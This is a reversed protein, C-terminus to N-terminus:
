SLGVSLSLDLARCGSDDCLLYGGTEYWDPLVWREVTKEGIRIEHRAPRHTHGHILRAVGHAHIAALVATPNVDMILPTKDAKARESRERLSKALAQREALPQALFGTQWEPNRVQSRFAQYAADDTCFLDGHSLLTPTGSLDITVPDPLMTLGAARAFDEGVLFDRNGPLFFLPTGSDALRRLAAVIAANFPVDLEDDGVWAEFFDGLIFLGGAGSAVTDVFHHFLKVPRPRGPSLHLDSIFLMPGTARGSIGSLPLTTMDERRDTM